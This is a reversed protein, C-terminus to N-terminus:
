HPNCPVVRSPAILEPDDEELSRLLFFPEIMSSKPTRWTSVVQSQHFIASATSPCFGNSFCANSNTNYIPRTNAQQEM